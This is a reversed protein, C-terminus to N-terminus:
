ERRKDISPYKPLSLINQFGSFSRFQLFILAKRKSPIFIKMPLKPLHVFEHILFVEPSQSNNKSADTHIFCSLPFTCASRHTEPFPLGWVGCRCEWDM